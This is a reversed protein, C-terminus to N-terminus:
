ERDGEEVFVSRLAQSAEMIWEVVEDKACEVWAAIDAQPVDMMWLEEAIDEDALVLRVDEDEEVTVTLVAQEKEDVKGVLDEEDPQNWWADDYRGSYNSNGFEYLHGGAGVKVDGRLGRYDDKKWYADSSTYGSGYQYGGAYGYGSVPKSASVAQKPLLEVIEATKGFVAENVVEKVGTLGCKPRMTTTWEREEVVVWNEEGCDGIESKPDVARWGWKHEFPWTRTEGEPFIPDVKFEVVGLGGCPLKVRGEAKYAFGLLQHEFTELKSSFVIATAFRTNTSSKDEASMWAGMSHHSHGHCVDREGIEYGDIKVNKTSRRQDQPVSVGEIEVVMGDESRTGQMVICWEIGTEKETSGAIDALIAAPIRLRGLGAKTVPCKEVCKTKFM